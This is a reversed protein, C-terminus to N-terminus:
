YSHNPMKVNRNYVAVTCVYIDGFYFGIARLVFYLITFMM